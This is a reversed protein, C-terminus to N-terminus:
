EPRTLLLISGVGLVMGAFERPTLTENFALWGLLATFVVTSVGYTLGVAAMKLQPFVAVWGVSVLAFVSAGVFFEITKFPSPMQSARKLFYDGLLCFLSVGLTLLISETRSM